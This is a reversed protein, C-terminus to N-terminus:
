KKKNTTNPVFSDCKRQIRTFITQIEEISSQIEPFMKVITTGEESVNHIETMDQIIKTLSKCLSIFFTTKKDLEEKCIEYREYLKENITTDKRLELLTWINRIVYEYKNIATNNPENADNIALSLYSFEDEFGKDRNIYSNNYELAKDCFNKDLDIAALVLDNSRFKVNIGLILLTLYIDTATSINITSSSIIKHIPEMMTTQIAKQLKIANELSNKCDNSLDNLCSEQEQKEEVNLLVKLQTGIRLSLMHIKETFDNVYLQAKSIYSGSTGIESIKQTIIKEAEMELKVNSNSASITPRAYKSPSCFPLWYIESDNLLLQLQLLESHCTEENFHEFVKRPSMLLTERNDTRFLKLLHERCSNLNEDSGNSDNIMSVLAQFYQELLIQRKEITEKKLNGFVLKPPFKLHSVQEKSLLSSITTNFDRLESYRATGSLANGIVGEVGTM